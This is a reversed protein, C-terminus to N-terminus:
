AYYVIRGDDLEYYYEYGLINDNVYSEVDIYDILDESIDILGNFACDRFLDDKDELHILEILLSISQVFNLFHCNHLYKKLLHYFFLKIIYNFCYGSLLNVVLLQM